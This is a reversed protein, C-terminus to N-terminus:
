LALRECEFNFECGIFAIAALVYWWVLLLVVAALSGYMVNYRAIHGVYWGFLLTSGLWLSTAVVAGPWVWRWRQPRNPGFYYLIAAGMIIAALAIVYRSISGLLSIWGQLESGAPILGLARIASQELRSGFLILV